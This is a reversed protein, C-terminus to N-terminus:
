EETLITFLRKRRRDEPIDSCRPRRSARLMNGFRNSRHSFEPGFINIRSFTFPSVIERCTKASDRYGMSHVLSGVLFNRRVKKNRILSMRKNRQECTLTDLTFDKGRWKKVRLCDNNPFEICKGLKRLRKLSIDNVFNDSQAPIHRM